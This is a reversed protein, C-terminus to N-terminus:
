AVIHRWSAAAVCAPLYSANKFSLCPLNEEQIYNNGAMLLSENQQAYLFFVEESLVLLPM